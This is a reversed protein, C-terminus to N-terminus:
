PLFRHVRISVSESSDKGQIGTAGPKHKKPPDTMLRHRAGQHAIVEGTDTVEVGIFHKKLRNRVFKEGTELASALNAITTRIGKNGLEPVLDQLRHNASDSQRYILEKIEIISM